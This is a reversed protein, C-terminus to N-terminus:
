AWPLDDQKANASETKPTNFDLDNVIIEVNSRKDGDKTEWRSQRLRGNITVHTGKKLYESLKKVREGFMTCDVFNPRNEGKTFENFAITFGIVPVDGAVRKECDAVINGSVCVVNVNSM